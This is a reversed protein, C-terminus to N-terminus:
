SCFYHLCAQFFLDSNVCLVFTIILFYDLNSLSWLEKDLNPDSLCVRLQVRCIAEATQRSGLDFDFLLRLSPFNFFLSIRCVQVHFDAGFVDVVAEVVHQMRTKFLKQKFEGDTLLCLIM